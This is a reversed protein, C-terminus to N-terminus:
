FFIGIRASRIGFIQFEVSKDDFFVRRAKWMRLVALSQGTTFHLCRAQFIRHFNQFRVQQIKSLKEDFDHSM